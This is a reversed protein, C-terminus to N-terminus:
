IPSPLFFGQCQKLECHYSRGNIAEKGIVRLHEVDMVVTDLVDRPIEEVVYVLETDDVEAGVPDAGEWVVQEVMAYLTHGQSMVLQSYKGNLRKCLCRPGRQHVQVQRM